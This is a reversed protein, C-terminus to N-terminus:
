FDFGNKRVKEYEEDWDLGSSYIENANKCSICPSINCEDNGGMCPGWKTYASGESTAVDLFVDM